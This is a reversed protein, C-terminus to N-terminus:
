KLRVLVATRIEDDLDAPLKWNPFKRCYRVLRNIKHKIWRRELLYRKHAPSKSSRGAKDCTKKQTAM